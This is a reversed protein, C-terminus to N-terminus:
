ENEIEKLFSKFTVKNGYYEYANIHPYKEKSELLMEYMTKDPIVLDKEEKTYYKNWIAKPKGFDRIKDIIGM